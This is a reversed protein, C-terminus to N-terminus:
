NQPSFAIRDAYWQSIARLDRLKVNALTAYPTYDAQQTTLHCQLTHMRTSRISM